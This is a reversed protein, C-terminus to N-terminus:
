VIVQREGHDNAKHYRAKWRVLDIMISLYKRNNREWDDQGKDKEYTDAGVKVRM